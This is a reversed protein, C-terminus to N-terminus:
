CVPTVTVLLVPVENVIDQGATVPAPDYTTRKWTVPVLVTDDNVAETPLGCVLADPVQVIAKSPRDPTREPKSAFEAYLRPKAISVEPPSAM